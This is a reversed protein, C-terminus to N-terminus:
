DVLQATTITTLTEPDVRQTVQVGQMINEFENKGGFIARPGMSDGYFYNNLQQTQTHLEAAQKTIETGESKLTEIEPTTIVKNLDAQLQKAFAAAEGDKYKAKVAEGVVECWVRRAHSDGSQMAQGYLKQVESFNATSAVQSKVAQTMYNLRSYDWQQAAKSEAAQVAEINRAMRQRLAGWSISLEQVAAAKYQTAQQQLTALAKKKGELSLDTNTEIQIKRAKFEALKDM